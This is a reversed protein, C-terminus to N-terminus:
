KKYLEKLNRNHLKAEVVSTDLMKGLLTFVYREDKSLDDVTGLEKLANTKESPTYFNSSM